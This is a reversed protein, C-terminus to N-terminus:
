IVHSMTVTISHSGRRNKLTIRSWDVFTVKGKVIPGRQMVRSTKKPIIRQTM